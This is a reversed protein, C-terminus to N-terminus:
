KVYQNHLRTIVRNLEAPTPVVGGPRGYFEVATRGEVSLRVDEVM